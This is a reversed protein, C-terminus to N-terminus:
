KYNEMILEMSCFSHEEEKHNSCVIITRDRSYNEIMEGYWNVGKEDLNVAPEDLLVITSKALLAMGLKLRQLMGSSLNGILTDRKTYLGTIEMLEGTNMGNILGKAKNHFLVMEKVTFENILGMYPAAISLHEFVRDRSLATQSYQYDARGTTPMLAGSIVKLLTSKGSGNNGLIAHCEGSKIEYNIERFIWDSKYKKGINKLVINM